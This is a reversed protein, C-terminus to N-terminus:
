MLLVVTISGIATALTAATVPWLDHLRAVPRRTGLHVARRGAQVSSVLFSVAGLGVIVLGVVPRGPVGDITPIGRGVALGIAVVSIGSRRWALTTRDAALGPDDASSRDEGGLTMM